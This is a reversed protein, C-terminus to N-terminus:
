ISVRYYCSLAQDNDSDAALIHGFALWGDGFNTNM